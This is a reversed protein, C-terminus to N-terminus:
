SEDYLLVNDCSTSQINLAYRTKRFVLRTITTLILYNRVITTININHFLSIWFLYTYLYTWWCALSKQVALEDTCTCDIQVGAWYRATCKYNCNGRAESIATFMPNLQLLVAYIATQSLAWGCRCRTPRLDYLLTIARLFQSKHLTTRIKVIFASCIDCTTCCHLQVASSRGIRCLVANLQTNFQQKHLVALKELIIALTSYSSCNLNATVNNQFQM